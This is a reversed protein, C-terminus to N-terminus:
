SIGATIAGVVLFAVAAVGFLATLLGLGESNLKQAQIGLFVSVVVLPIGVYLCYLALAPFM